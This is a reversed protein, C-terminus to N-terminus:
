KFKKIIERKLSYYLEPDFTEFKKELENLINEVVKFESQSAEKEMCEYFTDLIFEQKENM